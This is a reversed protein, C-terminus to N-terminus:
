MAPHVAAVFLEGLNKVAPWSHPFPVYVACHHDGLDRQSASLEPRRQARLDRFYQLFELLNSAETIRRFWIPFEARVLYFFEVM